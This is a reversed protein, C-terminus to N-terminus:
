SEGEEGEMIIDLIGVEMGRSLERMKVKIWM